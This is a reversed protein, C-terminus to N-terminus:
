KYKRNFSNLLDLDLNASQNRMKGHTLFLDIALEKPIKKITKGDSEAWGLRLMFNLLAEPNVGSEKYQLLSAAGDRKSLKKKKFHILGVHTYKPVPYSDTPTSFMVAIQRATNSIHDHGRIIHNVGLQFDDVATAFNYAPFGDGKMLIMNSMTAVDKDSVEMQGSIGDHWLKPFFENAGETFAVAGNDLEEALGLEILKDAVERYADLRQSQYHLEDYDLGLWDMTELILDIHEQKNREQDTDDIRLIFKGGSARAALYNFYATRATGLHMDGTPSPAIRTNHLMDIMNGDIQPNDVLKIRRTRGRPTSGLNM